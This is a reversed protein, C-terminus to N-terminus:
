AEEGHAEEEADRLTTEEGTDDEVKGHPVLAVLTHVADGQEKTGGTQSTSESTNQSIYTRGREEGSCGDAKAM